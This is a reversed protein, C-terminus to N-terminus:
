GAEGVAQLALRYLEESIWFGANRRLRDLEQGLSDIKGELRARILLGYFERLLM